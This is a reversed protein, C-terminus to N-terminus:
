LQIIQIFDHTREQSYLGNMQSTFISWDKREIPCLRVIVFSITLIFDRVFLTRFHAILLLIHYNKFQKM